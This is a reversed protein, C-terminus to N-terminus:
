SRVDGLVRLLRATLVPSSMDRLNLSHRQAALLLESRSYFIEQLDALVAQKEKTAQLTTRVDGEKM